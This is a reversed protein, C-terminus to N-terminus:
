EPRGIATAFVGTIDSEITDANHKHVTESYNSPLVISGYAVNNRKFTITAANTSTNTVYIDRHSNVNNPTDIALAIASNRPTILAM